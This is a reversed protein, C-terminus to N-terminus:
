SCSASWESLFRTLFRLWESPCVSDDACDEVDINTGLCERGSNVPPPNTCYRVRTRNGGGCTATCVGWPLWSGWDTIPKLSDLLHTIKFEYYM